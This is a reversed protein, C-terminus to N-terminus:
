VIGLKAAVDAASNEPALRVYAKKIGFKIQVNVSHVKVKYLSEVAAAIDKKTASSKVLFHLKNQKEIQDIARETVLPKILVDYPKM